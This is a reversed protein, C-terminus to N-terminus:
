GPIHNIGMTRHHEQDPGELLFASTTTQANAEHSGDSVALAEANRIAQALYEGDNTPFQLEDVAWNKNLPLQDIAERFTEPPDPVPCIIHSGVSHLQLEQHHTTTSARIVDSPLPGFWFPLPGFIQEDPKM